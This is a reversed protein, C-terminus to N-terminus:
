EVLGHWGRNIADSVTVIRSIEKVDHVRVMDVRQAIALSVTAATGELRENPPLGGLIQGITSKRSPGIHIPRGLTSRFEGIRRLITLNDATNKGFGIGPDLMIKGRSIGAGIADKLSSAM